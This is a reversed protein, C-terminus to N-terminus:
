EIKLRNKLNLFFYFFEFDMTIAVILRYIEQVTPPFLKMVQWNKSVAKLVKLKSITYISESTISCKQKM